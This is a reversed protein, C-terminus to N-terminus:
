KVGNTKHEKWYAYFQGAVCVVLMSSFIIPATQGDCISFILWCIAFLFYLCYFVIIGTKM